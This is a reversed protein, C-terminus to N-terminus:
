ALIYIVNPFDSKDSHLHISFFIGLINQQDLIDLM